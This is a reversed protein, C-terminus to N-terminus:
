RASLIQVKDFIIVSYTSELTSCVKGRRVSKMTSEPQAWSITLVSPLTRNPPTSRPVREAKSSKRLERM